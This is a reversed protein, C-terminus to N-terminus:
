LTNVNWTHKRPNQPLSKKSITECQYTPYHLHHPHTCWFICLQFIQGSTDQSSCFYRIGTCPSLTWAVQKWLAPHGLIQCFSHWNWMNLKRQIEIKCVIKPAFKRHFGKDIQMKSVWPNCDGAMRVPSKEGKSKVTPLEAERVVRLFTALWLGKFERPLGWALIDPTPSKWEEGICECVQMSTVEPARSDQWITKFYSTQPGWQVFAPRTYPIHQWREPQEKLHVCEM